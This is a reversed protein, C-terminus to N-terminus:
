QKLRVEPRDGVKKGKRLGITSQILISICSFPLVFYSLMLIM